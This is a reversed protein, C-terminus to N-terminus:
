LTFTDPSLARAAVSRKGRVMKSFDLGREEIMQQLRLENGVLIEKPLHVPFGAPLNTKPGEAAVLFCIIRIGEQM